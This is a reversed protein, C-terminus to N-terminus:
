CFSFYLRSIAWCVEDDVVFSLSIAERFDESESLSLVIDERCSSSPWSFSWSVERVVEVEDAGVVSCSAL